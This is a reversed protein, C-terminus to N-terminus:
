QLALESIMSTCKLPKAVPLALTNSRRGEVLLSISLPGDPIEDPVTMGLEYLGPFGAVGHISLPEVRERNIELLVAGSDETSGLLDRVGLGTALVLLGEGPQAPNDASVTSGDSRVARFLGPSVPAIRILMPESVIPGRQVRLEAVGPEVTLPIQLNIQDPTVALM